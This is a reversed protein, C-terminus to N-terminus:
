RLACARCAAADRVQQVALEAAAAAALQRTMAARWAEALVANEGHRERRARLRPATGSCVRRLSAAAAAAVADPSRQRRAAAASQRCISSGVRAAVM